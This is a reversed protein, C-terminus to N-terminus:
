KPSSVATRLLPSVITLQEKMLVRIKDEDNNIGLVRGKLTNVFSHTEEGGQEGHLALGFKWLRMFDVCHSELLHQKPIVTSETFHTRYYHMYDHISTEAEDIDAESVPRTHSVQKHVKSYKTNLGEFKVAIDHADTHISHDDTVEYARKVVSQCIDATVSPQLYKHCHNGVFSRGHYAQVEIKNSKLVQDLNSTVPGALLQLESLQRRQTEASDYTKNIDDQLEARKKNYSDTSHFDDEQLFVLQTEFHQKKKEEDNIDKLAKVFEEFPKTMGSFDVESEKVLVAAITKDLKHCEHELLVHHKKVIGLLIHLYPPAVQTLQLDFLPYHIANNYAKAKKKDRGARVFRRHDNKINLLTRQPVEPQETPARQIQTKTAKCWLCPHVAQAGSLGYVKTQFEYDGFLFVRLHKGRWTIEELNSIQQQYPALISQLNVFCDKCNVLTILFTNRRSNAETTNAVQLMLKFSGGGYDGGIKIWIEDEPIQENQTLLGEQEYQDLLNTVFEPLDDSGIYGVPISARARDETFLRKRKIHIDGCQTENQFVREQKESAMQVGKTRLYRKQRRYKNWSLGLMTRLVSGDKASMVPRKFGSARLLKERVAKSSKRLESSHQILSDETTKGSVDLRYKEIQKSRKKRLPSAATSSCKRPVIIKKFVLPQGKTKCRLTTNDGAGNLKMRTLQTHYEEEERSLPYSLDHAPRLKKKQSM